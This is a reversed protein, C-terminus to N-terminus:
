TIEKRLVGTEQANRKAAEGEAVANAVSGAGGLSIDM